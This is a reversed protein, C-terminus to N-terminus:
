VQDMKGKTQLVCLFHLYTIGAFVARQILLPKFNTWQGRRRVLLLGYNTQCRTKLPNQPANCSVNFRRLKFTDQHSIHHSIVSQM